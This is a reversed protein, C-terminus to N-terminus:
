PLSFISGTGLDRGRDHGSCKQLSSFRVRFHLYFVSTKLSSRPSNQYQSMDWPAIIKSRLGFFFFASRSSKRPAFRTSLLRFRLTIFFCAKFPLFRMFRCRVFLIHTLKISKVHLINMNRFIKPPLDVM